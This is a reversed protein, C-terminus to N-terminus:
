FSPQNSWGKHDQTDDSTVVPVPPQPLEWKTPGFADEYAQVLMEEIDPADALYRTVDVETKDEQEVDYVTDLGKGTRILTYDRTLLTGGNRDAKGILRNALDVPLKLAIVKAEKVDLVTAVYRRSSKRLQESDSNCGPCKDGSCPFFKTEASYHERYKKWQEPDKLFRVRLDKGDQLNKIWDGQGSSRKIDERINSGADESFGM